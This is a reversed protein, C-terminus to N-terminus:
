VLADCLFSIAFPYEEVHEKVYEPLEVDEGHVEYARTPIEVEGNFILTFIDYVIIPHVLDNEDAMTLGNRDLLVKVLYMMHVSGHAVDAVVFALEPFLLLRDLYLFPRRILFM